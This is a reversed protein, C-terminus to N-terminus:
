HEEENWALGDRKGEGHDIVPMEIIPVSINSITTGSRSRRSEQLDRESMNLNLKWGVHGDGSSQHEPGENPYEVHKDPKVICVKVIVM